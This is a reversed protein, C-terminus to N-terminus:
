RGAISWDINDIDDILASPAARISAISRHYLM